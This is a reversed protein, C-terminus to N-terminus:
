GSNYIGNREPRFPGDWHLIRSLVAVNKDRTSNRHSGSFGALNRVSREPETGPTGNRTWWYHFDIAFWGYDIEWILKMEEVAFWGYDRLFWGFDWSFDWTKSGMYINFLSASPLSPRTQFLLSASSLSAPFFSLTPRTRIEVIRVFGLHKLELDKKSSEVEM